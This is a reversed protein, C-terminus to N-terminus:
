GRPRRRAARAWRRRDAPRNDPGASPAPEGEALVLVQEGDALARALNIRAADAGATVGGAAAVADVVRAGLPLRVVGPHLVRGAVHM